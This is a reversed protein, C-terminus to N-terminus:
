DDILVGEFGATVVTNNDSVSLVVVKLDTGAEFSLPYRAGSIIGSATTTEFNRRNRWISSGLARAQLVVNASGAAGSARSTEIHISTMYLTTSAPVTYVAVATQGNGAAIQAFVNATTTKHRITINGANTQGSGGTVGYARNIRYWTNVSDVATTGNMTITEGEYETSASTKLGEIYLTRLGTGAAADAADSSFVEITEPSGTPFGTYIGGSLWVTEPTSTTDIDGNRGFKLISRQGTVNGRAVEQATDATVLSGARTATIGISKGSTRFAKLYAFASPLASNQEELEQNGLRVFAGDAIRRLTTTVYVSDSSLARDPEFTCRFYLGANLLDFDRVTSFDNITRSESIHATEADNSFEFTFTGGLGDVTRDTADLVVLIRVVDSKLTTTWTGEWPSAPQADAATITKTNNEDPEHNNKSM